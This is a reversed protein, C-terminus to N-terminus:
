ARKIAQPHTLLCVFRVSRKDESVGELEKLLKRNNSEDTAHEGSYRASHTGPRGGLADVEIGSDDAITLCKTFRAYTLAKKIANEEFTEGDEEVSPADPFDDLSRLAVPLDGLITQIESLKGRNRTAILIEM